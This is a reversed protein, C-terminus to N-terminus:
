KYYPVTKFNKFPYVVFNIFDMSSPVEGVTIRLKDGAALQNEEAEVKSVAIEGPELKLPNGNEDFVKMFNDSVAHIVM